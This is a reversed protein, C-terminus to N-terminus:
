YGSPPHDSPGSRGGRGGGSLARVALSAVVTIGGLLAVKLAADKFDAFSVVDLVALAGLFSLLVVFGMVIFRLFPPV